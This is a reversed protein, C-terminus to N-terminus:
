GDARGTFTRGFGLRFADGVARRAERDLALVDIPPGHRAARERAVSSMEVGHLGCPVVLAFGSLDVSVNLAFGHWSVGGRLGLGISALKRPAGAGGIRGAAAAFVGTMGPIRRAPVGLRDLADILVAEIARLCRHVDPEGGRALDVVLYGVLQGPAHYTVDGGRRVALCEIGRRRLEDESALVHAPLASRGLTVVPPHEVLLLRDGRRGARRAEVAAEQRALAERYPLLGLWEIELEPFAHRGLACTGV